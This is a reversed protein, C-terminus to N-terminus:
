SEQQFQPEIALASSVARFLSEQSFPKCLIGAAHAQLAQIHIDDSEYATIFVTPIRYNGAALRRQLEFGGMTPMRVDVILCTTHHMQRSKLFDEASAFGKAKYGVSQILSVMSEVVSQDDDVISILPVKVRQRKKVL